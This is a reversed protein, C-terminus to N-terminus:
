SLSVFCSAPTLLEFFARRSHPSLAAAQLLLYVKYLCVPLSMTTLNVTYIALWILFYKWTEIRRRMDIRRHDVRTLVCLRNCTTLLRSCHQAAGQSRQQWCPQEAMFVINNCCQEVLLVTTSCPQAVIIVIAFLSTRDINSEGTGVVMFLRQQKMLALVHLMTSVITLLMTREVVNNFCYHVVNNFCYHVVNNTWCCQQFLLSCCQKNLLMTSIIIFLMTSITSVIIFLMTREVAM